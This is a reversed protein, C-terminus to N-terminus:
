AANSVAAAMNFLAEYTLLIEVDYEEVDFNLDFKNEEENWVVWGQVPKPDTWDGVKDRVSYKFQVGDVTGQPTNLNGPTTKTIVM